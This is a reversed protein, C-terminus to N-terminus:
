LEDHGATRAREAEHALVALPTKLGHALDGAKALARSVRRERDELLANLDDVLPQVEVPYHGELRREHGERVSSLRSRLENFQSLGGRVVGFGAVVFAISILIANHAIFRWGPYQHASASGAATAVVLLGVAWLLSGMTVRSRFSRLLTMPDDPLRPRPRDRD